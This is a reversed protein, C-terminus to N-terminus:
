QSFQRQLQFGTLGDVGVRYQKPSGKGRPKTGNRQPRLSELAFVLDGRPATRLFCVRKLFEPKEQDIVHYDNIKNEPECLQSFCSM